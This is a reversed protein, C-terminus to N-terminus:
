YRLPGGLGRGRKRDALVKRGHNAIRSKHKEKVQRDRAERGVGRVVERGGEGRGGEGRAQLNLTIVSVAETGPREWKCVCCALPSPRSGLSCVTHLTGEPM